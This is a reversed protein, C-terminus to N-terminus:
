DLKVNTVLSFSVTVLSLQSCLLVAYSLNQLWTSYLNVIINVYHM